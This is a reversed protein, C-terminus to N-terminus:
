VAGATTPAASESAPSATSATDIQSSRRAVVTLWDTSSTRVETLAVVEWGAGTLAAALRSARWYVFHRPLGVKQRSWEEGDGAKFTAVLVGGEPVATVLRALVAPLESRDIHLLVANALVADYTEGDPGRPDDRRVDLLHAEHGAARQMTVFASTADTRRVQFGLAELRDADWGPGSGVELVSGGSPVHARVLSVADDGDWGARTTRERYVEAAQEYTALTVDNGDGM